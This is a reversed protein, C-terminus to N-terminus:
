LWAANWFPYDGIRTVLGARLPNAVVYRALNRLDEERRLARDHFARDWLRGHRGLVRNAARAMNNKIRHVASDLEIDADLRLMIHVHDPMLVWCWLHVCADTASSELAACAAMAAATHRFYPRRQSTTATVLYTGGAVSYRGRRLARHGASITMRRPQM